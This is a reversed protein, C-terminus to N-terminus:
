LGDNCLQERGGYSETERGGRGKKLGPAYVSIRAVVFGANRSWRYCIEEQILEAVGEERRFIELDELQQELECM